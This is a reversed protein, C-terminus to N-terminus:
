HGRSIAIEQKMWTLIRDAASEAYRSENHLLREFASQGTGGKEIEKALALMDRRCDAYQWLGSLCRIKGPLSRAGTSMGGHLKCRGNSMAPAQCPRGTQKAKAGCKPHERRRQADLEVAELQDLM